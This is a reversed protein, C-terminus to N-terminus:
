TEFHSDILSQIIDLQTYFDTILEVEEDTLLGIQESNGNHVILSGIKQNPIGQDQWNEIPTMAELETKLARRVMERNNNRKHRYLLYSGVVGTIAAALLFLNGIVPSGLLDWVLDWQILFM